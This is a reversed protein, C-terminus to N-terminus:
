SPPVIYIYIHLSHPIVCDEYYSITQVGNGPRSLRQWTTPQRYVYSSRPLSGRVPLTPLRQQLERPPVPLTVQLRRQHYVFVPRVQRNPIHVVGCLFLRLRHLRTLLLQMMRPKKQKMRETHGPAISAPCRGDTPDSEDKPDAPGCHYVQVM